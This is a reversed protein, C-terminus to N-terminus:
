DYINRAYRLYQENGNTHDNQQSYACLFLYAMCLTMQIYVTYYSVIGYECIMIISVWIIMLKVLSSNGKRWIKLLSIMIYFYYGYFEIFGVLGLDALIEYYNNHAYTSVGTRFGIQVIFNNIGYGLLPKEFFMDRAHDIFIQRLSISYDDGTDNMHNFMSEFRAGIASYFEPVSMIIFYLAVVIGIATLIRWIITRKNSKMLLMVVIGLASSLLSKRSSTLVVILLQIISFVYFIKEKCYISLYLSVMLCLTFIMGIANPNLHIVSAGFGGSFWQSTPTKILIYVAAYAGSWAYLKVCRMLSARTAYNQAMCFTIVTSQIMRSFVLMSNEPYTAWLMSAISLMLFGGYWLTFSPIIVREKSKMLAFLKVVTTGLFLFFSIYYFYNEGEIRTRNAFLSCLLLFFSIDVATDLSPRGIKINLIGNKFSFM